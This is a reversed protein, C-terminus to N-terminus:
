MLEEPLQSVNDGLEIGAPLWPSRTQSVADCTAVADLASLRLIRVCEELGPASM